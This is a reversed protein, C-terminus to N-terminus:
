EELESNWYKFSAISDKLYVRWSAPMSSDYSLCLRFKQSLKKPASPKVSLSMGAEEPTRGGKLQNCRECSIVINTWSTVGGKKRPTVHDFTVEDLTISNKCYQCKGGDRIYVNYRSFNIKRKGKFVGRLFRVISPVRIEFTVSRIMKDEYEEVIEVKGLWWLTIARQWSVRGVPM